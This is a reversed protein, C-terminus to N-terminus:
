ENKYKWIYGKYQNINHWKGRNKDFYGGHAAYLIGSQKFCTQKACDTASKWTKLIEGTTPDIQDVQISKDTIGEKFLRKSYESIQKKREDSLKVGHMPNNEGVNAKRLREKTYENNMNGVHTVIRLNSLAKSDGGDKIPIIHDIEMDQPIEGNFYFWVVRHRLCVIQKGDKTKYQNEIYNKPPKPKDSLFRNWYKSYVRGDKYIEYLNYDIKEEIM